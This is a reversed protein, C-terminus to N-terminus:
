QLTIKLYGPWLKPYSNRGLFDSGNRIIGSDTDLGLRIMNWFIQTPNIKSRNKVFLISFFFMFFVKQM